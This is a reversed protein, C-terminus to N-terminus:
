STEFAIYAYAIEFLVDSQNSNISFKSFVLTSAKEKM